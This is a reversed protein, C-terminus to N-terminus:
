VLSDDQNCSLTNLFRKSRKHFPCSILSLTSCIESFNITWRFKRTRHLKTDRICCQMLNNAKCIRQLKFTIRLCIYSHLFRQTIPKMHVIVAGIFDPNNNGIECEANRNRQNHVRHVSGPGTCQIIKGQPYLSSLYPLLHHRSTHPKDWRQPPIECLCLLSSGLAGEDVM